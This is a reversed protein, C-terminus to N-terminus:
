LGSVLLPALEVERRTLGFQNWDAATAAAVPAAPARKALWASSGLHVALVAIGGGFALLWRQGMAALGVTAVLAIPLALPERAAVRRIM